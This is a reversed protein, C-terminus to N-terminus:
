SVMTLARVACLDPVGGTVSERVCLVSTGGHGPALDAYRVGHHREPEPTLPRPEGDGTFAYIRQDAWNTFVVTNGLVTWPRGGYEHVRNRVNWPAPLVEVPTGGPGERMLAVRGGETPRGEAWWVVGDHTDVWRPAVGATAVTEAALPSEWSGFQAIKVM